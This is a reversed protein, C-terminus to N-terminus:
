GEKRKELIITIISLSNLVILVCGLLTVLFISMKGFKEIEEDEVTQSVEEESKGCGEIKEKNEKEEKFVPDAKCNESAYVNTTFPSISFLLLVFFFGVIKKIM